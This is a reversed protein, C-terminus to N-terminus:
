WIVRFLLEAFPAVFLVSDFRDLVGGHGSFYTRLGLAPRASSSRSRCTASRASCRASQASCSRRGIRCKLTLRRNM